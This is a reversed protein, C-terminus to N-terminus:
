NSMNNKKKNNQKNSCGKFKIDNKVLSYELIQYIDSVIKVDFVDKEILRPDEKMIKQLDKENDKPILVLKVGAKKAGNLKSDLGGIETIQGSLNIEGTMAIDNRIKTNTLLSIISTTIAGGASPGDKPTAGEPCHIHIGSVGIKWKSQYEEKIKDPLINWAITKSVKMSEKMVNGQQGTLELGLKDSTPIPLAEIVTLGGTDNTTAYLGNVVGVKSIDSIKDPKYEYKDEFLHKIIEQTITFPYKVTRDFLKDSTLQRLNIERTIEYLLEKLKRVGGEQTYTEVLSLISADNIIIDGSNLGVDDFIKPILYNNAIKIKDKNKFGKTKINVIRDRLIPNIKYYDNYSFVIVAKSLDFDIGQFYKDNFHSNQSADTLHMLINIIEDGKPTESVKDLEDFYIIPNMCKSKMLVEVIKGCISGEYTYGHGELYSADTAGGLSIFEFPRNLSKALGQEVLTTKGNGMPGQIGFINGKSNENNINQALIQLVHRKADNHGYVARDLTKKCKNLYKQISKTSSSKSVKETKYIGFPVNLLGEVWSKLKFDEGYGENSEITEMKKIVKAKNNLCMGSDIVKFLLPKDEENMKNIKGILELTDDKKNEPLDRFYKIDKKKDNNSHRLKIYDLDKKNWEEGLLELLEEEETNYDEDEDEDESNTSDTEYSSEDSSSYVDYIKKNDTKEGETVIVNKNQKKITKMERCVFEDLEKGKLRHVYKGYDKIKQKSTFEDQDDYSYDILDKINGREDVDKNRKKQKLINSVKNLDDFASKYLEEQEKIRFKLHKLVCFGPEKSNKLIDKIIDKFLHNTTEISGIYLKQKETLTKHDIDKYEIKLEIDKSKLEKGLNKLYSKIKFEAEKDKTKVDEYLHKLISINVTSKLFSLSLETQHDELKKMESRTFMKDFNDLM